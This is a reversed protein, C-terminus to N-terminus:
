RSLIQLGSTSQLSTDKLESDFKREDVYVYRLTQPELFRTNSEVHNRILQLAYFSEEDLTGERSNRRLALMSSSGLAGRM